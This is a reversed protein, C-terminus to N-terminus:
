TPCGGGYGLVLVLAKEAPRVKVPPPLSTTGRTAAFLNLQFHDSGWAKGVFYKGSNYDTGGVGGQVVPPVLLVSPVLAAKLTQCTSTVVHSPTELGQLCKSM